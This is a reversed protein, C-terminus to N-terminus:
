IRIGLLRNYHRFDAGSLADCSVIHAVNETKPEGTGDNCHRYDIQKIKSHILTSTPGGQSTVAGVIFTRSSPLAEMAVVFVVPDSAASVLDTLSGGLAVCWTSFSSSASCSRM